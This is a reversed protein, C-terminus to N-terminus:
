ANREYRKGGERVARGLEQDKRRWRMRYALGGRKRAPLGAALEEWRALFAEEQAAAGEVDPKALWQRELEDREARLLELVRDEAGRERLRRLLRERRLWYDLATAEDGQVPGGVRFDGPKFASLCPTSAGTLWCPVPADGGLEAVLSGTTHDGVWGGYHMCASDVSATFPQRRHAHRRLIAFFDAKTLSGYGCQLGSLTQNLRGDAGSFFTMLGNGYCRAFSFDAERKCWGRELAHKILEPHALDWRDEITLRNSIAAIDTYRRAAWYRGATELVWIETRDAILFSNDYTFRHDFGCNGGQGYRTLLALIVELAERATGGRELGLRVLDMGTLGPKERPEKTFVAENGIAVGARNIGMEAGWMWAPRCLLVERTFRAQEIERYTCALREGAQHLTEPVLLVLQPENPSRDSNKGFLLNGDATARGLAAITDCM